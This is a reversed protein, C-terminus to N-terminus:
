ASYVGSCWQPSSFECHDIMLLSSICSILIYTHIDIIERMNKKMIDRDVNKRPDSGSSNVTNVESSIMAGFLTIVITISSKAIRM